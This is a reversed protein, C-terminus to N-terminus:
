EGIDLSISAKSTKAVLNEWVEKERYPKRTKLM